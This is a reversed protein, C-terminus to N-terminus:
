EFATENQQGNDSRLIIGGFNNKKEVLSSLADLYEVNIENAVVYEVNGEPSVLISWYKNDKLQDKLLDVTEQVEDNSFIEYETYSCIRNNIQERVDRIDFLQAVGIFFSYKGMVKLVEIGDIETNLINTIGGTIPFNTHAIWCDWRDSPKLISEEPYAGMPTYILRSQVPMFFEPSIEVEPMEYSVEEQQPEPQQQQVSIKANWSEWLIKKKSTM